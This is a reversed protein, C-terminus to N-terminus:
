SRAKKYGKNNLYFECFKIFRERKINYVAKGKLLEEMLHQKIQYVEVGAEPMGEDFLSVFLRRDELAIWSFYAAPLVGAAGRAEKLLRRILTSKFAHQRCIKQFEEEKYVLELLRDANEYVDAFSRKKAFADSIDGLIEIAEMKPKRLYKKFMGQFMTPLVGSKFVKGLAVTAFALVLVKENPTWSDKGTHLPGLQYELEQDVQEPHFKYEHGDIELFGKQTGYPILKERMRFESKTLDRGSMELPNYETLWSMFRFQQSMVEILSDVNHWTKYEPEKHRMVRYVGIGVLLAGWIWAISWKLANDSNNMGSFKYDGIATAALEKKIIYAAKVTDRDFLANLQLVIEVEIRKLLWWPGQYIQPFLYIVAVVIVIMVGMFAVIDTARTYYDKDDSM